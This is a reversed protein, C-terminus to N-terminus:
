RVARFRNAVCLIHFLLDSFVGYLADFVFNIGHHFEDRLEVVIELTGHFEDEVALSLDDHRTYALAAVNAGLNCGGERAGACGREEDVREVDIM